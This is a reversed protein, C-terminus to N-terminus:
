PRGATHRRGRLAGAAGMDGLWYPGLCAQVRLTSTPNVDLVTYNIMTNYLCLLRSNRKKEEKQHSGPNPRGPERVNDAGQAGLAVCAVHQADDSAM